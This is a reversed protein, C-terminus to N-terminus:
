HLVSSMVSLVLTAMSTGEGVVDPYFNPYRLVETSKTPM